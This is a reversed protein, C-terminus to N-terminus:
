ICGKRRIHIHGFSFANVYLNAMILRGKKVFRPQDGADWMFFVDHVAPSSFHDNTVIASPYSMETNWLSKPRATYKLM